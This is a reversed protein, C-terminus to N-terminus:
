QRKLVDKPEGGSPYNFKYNVDRFILTNESLEWLAKISKHTIISDNVSYNGLFHWNGASTLQYLKGNDYKVTGAKEYIFGNGSIKWVGEIGYPDIKNKACSVLALAIIFILKKM